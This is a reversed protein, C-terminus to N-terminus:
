EPSSGEEAVDGRPMEPFPRDALAALRAFGDSEVLCQPSVATTEVTPKGEDDIGHKVVKVQYTAMLRCETCQKLEVQLYAPQGEFPPDLTTLANIDGQVVREFADDDEPFTLLVHSHDECWQGCEECYVEDSISGIAGVTTAGVVIVAEIGWTIWLMLGSPTADSISYWGTENILQAFRWMEQPDLLLDVFGPVGESGKGLLASEFAAWETYLAIVGILVGMVALVPTSRCKSAKGALIMVFSLGFGYAAIILLSLIVLPSYVMAYAYM